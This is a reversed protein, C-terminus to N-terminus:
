DLIRPVVYYGNYQEHANELLEERSIMKYSIDERMVNELSSVTVLPEVNETAVNELMDFKEVWFDFFEIAAAKESDTLKIKTLSELKELNIM